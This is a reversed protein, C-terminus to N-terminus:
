LMEANEWDVGDGNCQSEIADIFEVVTGDPYLLGDQLKTLCPICVVPIPDGDGVVNLGCRCCEISASGDAVEGFMIDFAEAPDFNKRPEM